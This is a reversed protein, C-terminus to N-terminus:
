GLLICCKLKGRTQVGFEYLLCRMWHIHMRVNHIVNMNVNVDVNMNANVNEAQLQWVFNRENRNGVKWFNVFPIKTQIEILLYQFHLICHMALGFYELLVCGIGLRAWILQSETAVSVSHSVSLSLIVPKSFRSNCKEKRNRMLYTHMANSIRTSQSKYKLGLTPLVKREARM